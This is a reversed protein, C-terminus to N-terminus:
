QAQPPPGLMPRPWLRRARVVNLAVAYLMAQAGLHLWALTGLV